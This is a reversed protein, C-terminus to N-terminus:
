RQLSHVLERLQIFFENRITEILQAERYDLYATDRDKFRDPEVQLAYSNVQKQWFWEACCFQINQPDIDPIGKLEEYM